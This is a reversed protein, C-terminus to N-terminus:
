GRVKSGASVCHSCPLISDTNVFEYKAVSLNHMLKIDNLLWSLHLFWCHMSTDTDIQQADAYLQFTPHSTSVSHATSLYLLFLALM